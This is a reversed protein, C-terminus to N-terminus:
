TCGYEPGGAFRATYRAKQPGPSATIPIASGIPPWRVSPQANGDGALPEARDRVAHAAVGAPDVQVLDSFQRELLPRLQDEASPGRDRARDVERPEGLDRALDARDEHGVHGVDRAQDGPASM